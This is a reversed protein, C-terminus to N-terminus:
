KNLKLETEIIETERFHIVGLTSAGHGPKITENMEWHNILSSVFGFQKIIQINKKCKWLKEDAIMLWIEDRKNHVSLNVLIISIWGTPTMWKSM